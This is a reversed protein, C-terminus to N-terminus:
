SYSNNAHTVQPLIMDLFVLGNGINFQHADHIGVMIPATLNGLTIAYLSIAIVLLDQVSHIRDTESHRRFHMKLHGFVDQCLANMEQYFFRNGIFKFRSIGHDLHCPFATQNKLHTKDLTEVGGNYFHRRQQILRNKKLRVTHILEGYSSYINIHDEVQHDMIQVNDEMIDCCIDSLNM